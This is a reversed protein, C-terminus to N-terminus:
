YLLSGEMVTVAKGWIVVREGAVWVKLRGGRESSQYANFKNKGLKKQWYPGLTCHASGTVPDEFIGIEPAFFRSVFDYKESKATVIVGRMPVKMLRTFDPEIDRVVQESQVEILYDFSNKGIYVPYINLAEVLNPPVDAAEAPTAPFDLQIWCGDRKALLTGSKTRFVAEQDAGLYGREWLIHASALTAHGCLDVESNPTFWRLTYANNVPILFATEPLNMEAAVDQMWKESPASDLVCVVAPNGRFPEETFADVQYIKM